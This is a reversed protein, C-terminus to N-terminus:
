AVSCPGGNYRSFKCWKCKFTPKPPFRKEFIVEDIKVRMKHKYDLMMGEPYYIKWYDTQDFYTIMADVGPREPHHIMLATAYTNAQAPHEPYRKGTKWEYLPINAKPDEPIIVADMFGHIMCNSDSYGCPQFDWTIGWKWEPLVDGPEERLSSMFQGYNKHIDPHLFESKRLLFNEVSDHIKSGREMAPSPPEQEVEVRDIYAFKFKQPCQKFTALSSYSYVM